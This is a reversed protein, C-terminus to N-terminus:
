EVAKDFVQVKGSMYYAQKPEVDVEEKKVDNCHFRNTIVPREGRTLKCDRSKRIIKSVNYICHKPRSVM